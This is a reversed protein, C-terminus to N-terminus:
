KLILKNIIGDPDTFELSQSTEQYDLGKSDLQSKVFDLDQSNAFWVLKGLGRLGSVRKAANLSEWINAGLHHHYDGSALFVANKPVTFKTGLGLVEQYFRNSQDLNSIALHFHGMKTKAPLGPFDVQAGALVAQVDLEQTVGVIEGNDKIDWQNKPKDWYIEIGNGEPDSLYLAESYGHDAAGQMPVKELILHRLMTGLDSRSPLLIAFHYLGTTKEKLDEQAKSIELLLGNEQSGLQYHQDEEDEMIIQFGLKESYFNSLNEPDMANIQVYAPLIDTQASPNIYM